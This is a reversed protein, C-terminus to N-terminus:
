DTHTERFVNALFEKFLAMHKVKEEDTYAKQSNIYNLLIEHTPPNIQYTDLIYQIYIDIYYKFAEMYPIYSYLKNLEKLEGSQILQFTNKCLNNEYLKKKYLKEYINPMIAYYAAEFYKSAISAFCLLGTYKENSMIAIGGLLTQYYANMLSEAVGFINAIREWMSDDAFPLNRCVLSAYAAYVDICGGENQMKQMLNLRYKINNADARSYFRKYIWFTIIYIVLLIYIGSVFQANFMFDFMKRHIHELTSIIIYLIKIM